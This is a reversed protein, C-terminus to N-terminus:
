LKASSLRCRNMTPGFYEEYGRNEITGRGESNLGGEHTLVFVFVVKENADANCM